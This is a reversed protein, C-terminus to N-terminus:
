AEIMEMYLRRRTRSMALIDRESWGYSAALTHIERLLCDSWDDLEGLLYSVIDFTTQWAHQCSPCNLGIQIHADPDHRAMEETVKRLVTPPLEGAEMRTGDHQAELICRHLLAAPQLNEPPNDTLELLDESTPLRYRIAYGEAELQLADRAAPLAPAAVVIQHTHFSSEIREGCRPCRTATELATGFLADRLALLCADRQGISARNWEQLSSDPWATALLTLVREVPQRSRGEEWVRLLVEANLASM